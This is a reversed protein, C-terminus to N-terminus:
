GLTFIPSNCNIGSFGTITGDESVKIALGYKSLSKAAALRGGSASGGEVKVIAGTAIIRGKRDLITAGDIGLIEQLKKRSFNKKTIAFDDESPGLIKKFAIRKTQNSDAPIPQNNTECYEILRQKLNSNYIDHINIKELIQKKHEESLNDIDIDWIALCAGTHAFSVDVVANYIIKSLQHQEKDFLNNFITDNFIYWQGRRKAFLLRGERILLIDGNKILAVILCDKHKQKQLISNLFSNITYPSTYDKKNKSENISYHELINCDRDLLIASQGFETLPAMFDKAIVDNVNIKESPTEELVHSFVYVMEVHEGEYTRRSWVDLNNILLNLADIQNVFWENKNIFHCIALQIHYPSVNRLNSKETGLLEWLNELLKQILQCEFLTIKGIKDNTRRFIYKSLEGNHGGFVIHKGDEVIVGNIKGYKDSENESADSHEFYITPIIDKIIELLDAVKVEMNISWIKYIIDCYNRYKM